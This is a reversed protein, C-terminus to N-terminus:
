AQRTIFQSFILLSWLSAGHDRYGQLHDNVMQKLMDPAFYGCDLMPESLVSNQLSQKLQHRFWHALPISFGMKPRYLIDNNVYGELSKKFAYKGEKGAINHQSGISYAWSILEHDLLPARIELSNAMSARDVKTLIDGPLWTKFDLYQIQKLPDDTPFNEAHAKLIESGDYGGLSHLYRQSFLQRREDTRLKSISNAYGDVLEMALSQFTTKARLPRPAWDAKPYWQGLAAFLPRRIPTPFLNRFREENLNMRHRRYGAFIEDGGDGSLAVTVHKRAMECVRFTPMASSDAFPEDYIDTMRDILATDNPHAIESFHRTHYREAMARAYDSEDFTQESFGISCTTVPTNQLEAMLAVIASSDVGGSLFAGLPVDSILRLKVAERLKDLLTQQTEEWGIPSGPSPLDWYLTPNIRGGPVLLMSHGPPLKFINSYASYPDPIYGYMFFEEAMEPRLDHSVDPHALLVKLESAFIFQGKLTQTYYLPKKGLRDRAIFLSQHKRDWVAFAFMGRFRDVCREGWEEWAHVIVETDSMTQFTHGKEQLIEAIDRFNYIEGNFVVVVSHDENFLPQHGGGVDIIALRRHALAIQPDYFYGEDDPGRHSQLRNIFQMTAPEIPRPGAINFIGSIGCM